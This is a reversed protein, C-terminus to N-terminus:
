YSEVNLVTSFGLILLYRYELITFTGYSTSTQFLFKNIPILLTHRVLYELNIREIGVRVFHDFVSLFNAPKQRRITQTHKVM